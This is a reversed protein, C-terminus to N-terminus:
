REIGAQEKLREWKDIDHQFEFGNENFIKTIFDIHRCLQKNSIDTTSMKKDGEIIYDTNMSKFITKLSTDHEFPTDKPCAVCDYDGYPVEGRYFVMCGNGHADKWERFSILPAKEFVEALLAHYFKNIQASITMSQVM